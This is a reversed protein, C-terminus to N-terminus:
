PSAAPCGVSGATIDAVRPTPTRENVENTFLGALTGTPTTAFWSGGQAFSTRLANGYLRRAHALTYGIRLGASTTVNPIDRYGPGGLLSGTSYGVFLQHDFYATMTAWGVYADITCNNSPSPSPNRPPGLVEELSGIAAAEAQGFYATGIGNGRVVLHGLAPASAESSGSRAEGDPHPPPAGGFSATLGIAVAVVATLTASVLLWRRRRRRRAEEFLAETSPDSPTEALGDSSLRDGIEAGAGSQHTRVIM